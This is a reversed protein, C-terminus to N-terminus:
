IISTEQMLEELSKSIMKPSEGLKTEGTFVITDKPFSLNNHFKYKIMQKKVGNCIDSIYNPSIKLHRSAEARGDYKTIFNYDKDFVFVPKSAKNLAGTKGKQHICPKRNPNLAAHKNNHALTCWELNKYYNNSRVYDLHNVQPLKFPNKRFHMAVLRHVPYVKRKDKKSLIIQIYGNKRLSLKRLQNTRCNWVNGYSSIKYLEKYGKINKWKEKEM